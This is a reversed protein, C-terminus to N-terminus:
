DDEDNLVGEDTDQTKEYKDHPGDKKRVHLSFAAQVQLIKALAPHLLKLVGTEDDDEEKDDPASETGAILKAHEELQKVHATLSTVSFDERVMRGLGAMKLAECVEQKSVGKVPYVWPERHTSLAYGDITISKIGASALHALLSPQIAKLVDRAERAEAEARRKALTAAVFRRAAQLEPSDAFSSM